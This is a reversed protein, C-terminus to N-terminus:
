PIVMIVVVAAASSFLWFDKLDSSYALPCPITMSGGAGISIGTTASVTSDGIFVPAAGNNQIFLNQFGTNSNDIVPSKSIIRQPTSSAALTVTTVYM